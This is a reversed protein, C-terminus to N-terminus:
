EGGSIERPYRQALHSIRFAQLIASARGRREAQPFNALGYKVNKEVTLHPFLALTQFVYGVRRKAVPLDTGQAADFLIRDDIAIRGSDPKALGAVCDLVTTKGAGSPGFLISFGAAARFEAELIFERAHAAFRKRFKADLLAGTFKDQASVSSGVAVAAPEDTRPASM